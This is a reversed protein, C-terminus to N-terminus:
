LEGRSEAPWHPSPKFRAYASGKGEMCADRPREGRAIDTGLRSHDVVAAKAVTATITPEADRECRQEPRTLVGGPEASGERPRRICTTM